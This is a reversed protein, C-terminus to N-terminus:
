DTGSRGVFLRDHRGTALEADFAAGLRRILANQRQPDGPGGPVYPKGGAIYFGNSTAVVPEEDILVRRTITPTYPNQEDPLRKAGPMRELFAVFVATQDGQMQVVNYQPTGHLYSGRWPLPKFRAREALHDRGDPGRRWEFHHEIWAADIDEYRAFRMRMPDIALTRWGQAGDPGNLTAEAMLLRQADSSRMVPLVISKGDPALRAAGQGYPVAYDIPLAPIARAERSRVDYVCARGLLVARTDALTVAQPGQFVRNAQPGDLAQVTNLGGTTKCLLPTSVRGAEQHVRHFVSGNNPDGVLVLLDAAAGQPAPVIFVAHVRTFATPTDLWLGSYSDIALPQGRWRLSWDHTDSWARNDGARYARTHTVLDIDGYREVRDPVAAPAHAGGGCGVLTSLLSLLSM